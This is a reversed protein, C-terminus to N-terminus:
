DEQVPVAVFMKSIYHSCSIPGAFDEMPYDDASKKEMDGSPPIEYCWKFKFKETKRRKPFDITLKDNNIDLANILKTQINRDNYGKGAAKAIIGCGANPIGDIEKALLMGSLLHESGSPRRIRQAIIVARALSPSVNQRANKEVTPDSAAKIFRRSEQIIGRIDIGDFTSQLWACTRNNKDRYAKDKHTLVALLPTRYWRLIIRVRGFAPVCPRINEAWERHFYGITLGELSVHEIARWVTRVLNSNM